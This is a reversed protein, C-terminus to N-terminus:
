ACPLMGAARMAEVEEKRAFRGKVRPRVEAYAKRSAYRITKKFQRNKKKERYRALRVQRDAARELLTQPDVPRLSPPIFSSVDLPEPDRFPMWEPMSPVMIHQQHVAVPASPVPPHQMSMMPTEDVQCPAQAPVPPPVVAVAPSDIQAPVHAAPKAPSEKSTDKFFDAEPVVGDLISQTLEDFGMDLRDLWTPDMDFIDLDQEFEKGLLSKADLPGSINNWGPFDEVGPPVLPVDPVAFMSDEEPSDHCVQSEEDGVKSSAVPRDLDCCVGEPTYAGSLPVRQHRSMVVGAHSSVDCDACLHANDNKCFVVAPVALCLECIPARRHKQALANASHVQNDCGKCLYADDNFCYLQASGECVICTKM